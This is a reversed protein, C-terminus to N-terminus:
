KLNRLKQRIRSKAARDATLTVARTWDALAADKRGMRSEAEGRLDYLVGNASTQQLAADLQELAEASQNQALYLRALAERAGVYGPVDGIIQRYREIAQPGNGRAALSAAYALWSPIFKPGLALNALWLRDAGPLDGQAALILALNHRANADDPDDALAKRFLDAAKATRGEARAVTGLANWVRAREQWPNNGTGTPAGTHPRYQEAVARAQEFRRGANPLDGLREYLLGLNYPLYSFEPASSMALEYLQIARDYNGRESELPALNHVPYAWYPAFRMATHFADAAENLGQQTRAARELEAIGLANYAYARAPDLRISQNLLAEAADYQADFILARGHCFLARSQDYQVSPALRFAEDFYRGCRDFDARTLAEQEGDLYRSMIQQGRDALAVHLRQQRALLEAAPINPDQRMQAFLQFASSPEEPLLSGSALAREFDDAAQREQLVSPKSAGRIAAVAQRKRIDRVESQSLPYAEKLQIGEQHVNPVVIMDPNTVRRDPEQQHHTKEYVENQVYHFLEAFTVSDGAPDAAAGNLGSILFYSFVGHGEGFRASELAPKKAQTAMMLGLDGSRGEFVKRVPEQLQSGGGIGGVNEAHCVDVFVLVRGYRMAQQAIMLRFEDMPYGTTKPDQSNSDSTLIYPETDIIKHTDPDEETKLYVGHAAVFLILTNDPSAHPIAFNKVADDIAERTARENTLLDIQTDPDLGGGVPKTLLDRFTEADKDAFQLSAVPPDHQYRSIGILLAYTKGPLQGTLPKLVTIGRQDVPATAQGALVVPLLCAILIAASNKESV